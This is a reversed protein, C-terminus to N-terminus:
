PHRLCVFVIGDCKSSAKFTELSLARKTEGTTDKNGNCADRLSDMGLVGEVMASALFLGLSKTALPIDM